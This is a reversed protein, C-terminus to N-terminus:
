ASALCRLGRRQDRDVRLQFNFSSTQSLGSRMCGSSSFCHAHPSAVLVNVVATYTADIRLREAHQEAQQRRVEAIRATVEDSIERRGALELAWAGVEEPLDAAGALAATFFLPDQNVYIVGHGKEVQVTRAMALAMEALERRFPILMGNELERPTGTLWTQIVKAIASSVAGRLKERQAILFRLVPPWRGIVISRHQAELYLGLSSMTGSIGGTPVTGIHDFRILLRTLHEANNALLLDVRETLFREAEPDLCLADLLIDGALFLGSTQASAFASDWATGTEAPQRLLFQGLMRLSNTWLPNEALKAWQAADASIEKLYQFRAWDAALDHEFEIRNTRRNLRLPLEAPSESFTAADAPDLDSLAFSREFYAERKALRMM